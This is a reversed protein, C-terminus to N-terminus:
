LSRTVRYTRGGCVFGKQVRSRKSEKTPGFEAVNLNSVVLNLDIIPEDLDELVQSSKSDIAKRAKQADKEKLYETVARETVLMHPKSPRWTFQEAEDPSRGMMSAIEDLGSHLEVHQAM